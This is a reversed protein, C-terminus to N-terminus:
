DPRGTEGSRAASAGTGARAVLLGSIRAQLRTLVNRDTVEERIISILASVLVMAQESTIMQQMDVLRRRETDVLKRRQELLDTIQQWHMNARVGTDIIEGIAKFAETWKEVDERRSAADMVRHQQQLSLWLDASGGAEDQELLEAIRTDVLGIEYKLNLLDEDALAEAYRELLREPLYKSHRLHRAHPSAIGAPTKGGHIACVERGPTAHRKCQEGSQKSKAKCRM